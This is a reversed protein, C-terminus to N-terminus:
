NTTFNVHPAASSIDKTAMWAKETSSNMEAQDVPLYAVMMARYVGDATIVYNCSAIPQSQAGAQVNVEQGNGINQLCQLAWTALREYTNINSPITALSLATM